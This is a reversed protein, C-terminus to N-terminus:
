GDQEDTLVILSLLLHSYVPVRCSSISIPYSGQPFHRGHFILYRTFIYSNLLFTCFFHLNRDNRSSSYSFASQGFVPNLGERIFLFEAEDLYTSNYGEAVLSVM